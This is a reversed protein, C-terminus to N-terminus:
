PLMQLENTKSSKTFLCAKKLPSLRNRKAAFITAPLYRKSSQPAPPPHVSVRDAENEVDKGASEMASLLSAESHIPKPKTQKQLVESKIVPLSEGQQVEPLNGTEDEGTEEQESFVGRWGAQKIVSGRVEFITDGSTLTITTADKLCKPSFAELM